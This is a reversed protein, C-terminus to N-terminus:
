VGNGGCADIKGGSYAASPPPDGPPRGSSGKLRRALFLIEPNRQKNCLAYRGVTVKSAPLGPFWAEVAEMEERGGPHGGYAHVSLLGRPLLAALSAELAILTSASRTAISRDSRPLFGLNFM